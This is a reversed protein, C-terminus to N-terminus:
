FPTSRKETKTMLIDNTAISEFIETLLVIGIQTGDM